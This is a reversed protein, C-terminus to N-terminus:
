IDQKNLLKISILSITLLSILTIVMAYPLTLGEVIITGGFFQNFDFSAFPLYKLGSIYFLTGLYKLLTKSLISLGIILGITIGSNKFAISLLMALSMYTFIEVFSLNYKIISYLYQNMAVVKDNILVLALQSNFKFFVGGIIVSFLFMINIFAFCIVALVIMKSLFIKYRKFPYCFLNKITGFSYENTLSLSAFIVCIILLLINIFLTKNLYNSMSKTADNKIHHEIKYLLIKNQNEIEKVQNDTITTIGYKNELIRTRNGQYTNLYQSMWDTDNFSPHINYKYRLQNIELEVLLSEYGYSYKDYTTQTQINKEDISKYYTVWDDNKIINELYNIKSKDKNSKKLDLYDFLVWKRWDSPPINNELRFEYEALSNKYEEVYDPNKCTAIKDKYESVKDTFIVKWDADM